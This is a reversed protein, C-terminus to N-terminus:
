GGLTTKSFITPQIQKYHMFLYGLLLVGLFVVVIKNRIFVLLLVIVLIAGFLTYGSLPNGSTTTATM